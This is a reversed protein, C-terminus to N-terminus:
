ILVYEVLYLPLVQYPQFVIYENNHVGLGAKQVGSLGRVFFADHGRASSWEESTELADSPDQCWCFDHMAKSNLLNGEILYPNGLAVRCRLMSYVRQGGQVAGTRLPTACGRNQAARGM